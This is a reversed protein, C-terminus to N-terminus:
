GGVCVGWLGKTFLGGIEVQARKGRRWCHRSVKLLLKRRREEIVALENQLEKNMAEAIQPVACVPVFLLLYNFHV